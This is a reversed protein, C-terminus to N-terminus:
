YCLKLKSVCNLNECVLSVRYTYLSDVCEKPILIFCIFLNAKKVGFIQTISTLIELNNLLKTENKVRFLLKEFMKGLSWVVYTKVSGLLIFHTVNFHMSNTCKSIGIMKCCNQTIKRDSRIGMWLSMCFGESLVVGKPNVWLYFCGHAPSTTSWLRLDFFTLNEHSAQIPIITRKIRPKFIRSTCNPEVKWFPLQTFFPLCLAGKM